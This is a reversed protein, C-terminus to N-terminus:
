SDDSKDSFDKASIKTFSKDSQKDSQKDSLFCFFEQATIQMDSLYSLDSLHKLIEQESLYGNRLAIDAVKWFSLSYGRKTGTVDRSKYDDFGLKQKMQTLDLNHNLCYEV